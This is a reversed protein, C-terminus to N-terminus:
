CHSAPMPAPSRSTEAASAPAARPPVPDPPLGPPDAQCSTRTSPLRLPCPRHLPQLAPIEDLPGPQFTLQQFGKLATLVKIGKHSCRLGTELLLHPLRHQKADALHLPHHGILLRWLGVSALASLSMEPTSDVVGQERAGGRLKFLLM